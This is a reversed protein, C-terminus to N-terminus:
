SKALSSLKQFPPHRRWDAKVANEEKDDNSSVNIQSRFSNSDFQSRSITTIGSGDESRLPSCSNQGGVRASGAGLSSRPSPSKQKTPSSFFSLMRAKQKKVKEAKELEEKRKEEEREEEKKRKM